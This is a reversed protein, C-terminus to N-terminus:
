NRFKVDQMFFSVNMANETFIFCHSLHEDKAGESFSKRKFVETGNNDRM